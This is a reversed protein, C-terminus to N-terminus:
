RLYQEAMPFARRSYPRLWCQSQKLGSEGSFAATTPLDRQRQAVILRKEWAVLAATLLSGARKELRNM